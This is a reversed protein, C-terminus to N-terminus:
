CPSYTTPLQSLRACVHLSHQALGGEEALHFRTSAPATFFDSNLLWNLLDRSGDRTIIEEFIELITNKNKEVNIM